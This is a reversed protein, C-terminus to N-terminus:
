TSEEVVCDIHVRAVGADTFTSYRYHNVGTYILGGCVSCVFSKRGKVQTFTRVIWTGPLKAKIIKNM